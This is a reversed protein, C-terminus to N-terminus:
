SQMNMEIDENILDPNIVHYNTILYKISNSIKMFFGTGNNKQNKM